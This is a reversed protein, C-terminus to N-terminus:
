EDRDIVGSPAYAVGSAFRDVRPSVIEFQSEDFSAADEADEPSARGLRSGARSHHHHTTKGKPFMLPAVSSVPTLLPEGSEQSSDTSSQPAPKRRVLSNTRSHGAATATGNVASERERQVEVASNLVAMATLSARSQARSHQGSITGTGSGSGNSNSISNGHRYEAPLEPVSPSRMDRVSSVSGRMLGAMDLLSPRRRRPEGASASVSGASESQSSGADSGGGGGGNNKRRILSKRVSTRKRQEPPPATSASSSPIAAADSSLPTKSKPFQYQSAEPSPSRRSPYKPDQDFYFPDLGSDPRKHAKQTQKAGRGSAVAAAPLTSSAYALSPSPTRSMTTAESFQLSMASSPPRSPMTSPDPSPPMSPSSISSKNKNRWLKRISKMSVLTSRSSPKLSSQDEKVSDVSFRSSPAQSGNDNILSSTREPHGAVPREDGFTSSPFRGFPDPSLPLGPSGSREEGKRGLSQPIAVAGANYGIDEEYQKSRAQSENLSRASGTSFISSISPSNKRREDMPRSAESAKGNLVVRPPSAAGNAKLSPLSKPSLPGDDSRNALASYPVAPWAYQALSTSGLCLKNNVQVM